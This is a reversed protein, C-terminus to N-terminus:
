HTKKFWGYLINTRKTKKIMYAPFETAVITERGSKTEKIETLFVYFLLFLVPKMFCLSNWLRGMHKLETLRSLATSGYTLINGCRSQGGQSIKVADITEGLNLSYQCGNGCLLVLQEMLWYILFVRSNRVLPEVNAAIM